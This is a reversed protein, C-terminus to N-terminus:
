YGSRRTRLFAWAIAIVVALWLVLVVLLELTATYAQALLLCVISWGALGIIGLWVGALRSM